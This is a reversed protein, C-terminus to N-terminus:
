RAMCKTETEKELEDEEVCVVPGELETRAKRQQCEENEEQLIEDFDLAEIIEVM